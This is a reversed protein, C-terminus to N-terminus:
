SCETSPTSLHMVDIDTTEGDYYGNGRHRPNGEIVSAWLVGDPECRLGIVKLEVGRWDAFYPSTENMQVIDGLKVAGQAPDLTRRNWLERANPKGDEIQAGCDQCAVWDFNQLDHINKSGCFPCPLLENM